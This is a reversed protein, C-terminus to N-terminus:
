LWSRWPHLSLLLKRVCNLLLSQLRANQRVFSSAFCGELKESELLPKSFEGVGKEELKCLVEQEQARQQLSGKVVGLVALVSISHARANLYRALYDDAM